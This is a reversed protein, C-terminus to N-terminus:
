KEATLYQYVLAALVGGMGFIAALLGAGALAGLRQAAVYGVFDKGSLKKSVLMATGCGMPPARGTHPCLFPPLM